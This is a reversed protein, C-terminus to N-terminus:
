VDRWVIMPPPQLKGRSVYKIIGGFKCTILNGRPLTKTKGRRRRRKKKKKNKRKDTTSWLLNDSM